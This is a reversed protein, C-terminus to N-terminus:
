RKGDVQLQAYARILDEYKEYPLVIALPKGDSHGQVVYDQGVEVSRIMASVNARNSM